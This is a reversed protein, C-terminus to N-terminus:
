LGYGGRALATVRSRSSAVRTRADTDNWVSRVAVARKPQATRSRRIVAVDRARGNDERMLDRATVRMSVYRYAGVRSNWVYEWGDSMVPAHRCVRSPHACVTPETDDAGYWGADGFVARADDDRM